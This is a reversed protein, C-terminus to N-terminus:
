LIERILQQIIGRFGERGTRVVDGRGLGVLSVLVGRLDFGWDIWIWM